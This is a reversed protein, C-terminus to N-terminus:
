CGLLSVKLGSLLRIKEAYNGDRDFLSQFKEPPEEPVLCVRCCKLQDEM